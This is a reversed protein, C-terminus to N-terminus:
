KSRNYIDKVRLIIESPNLACGGYVTHKKDKDISCLKYSMHGMVEDSEVTFFMNTTMDPSFVYVLASCLMVSEPSPLTVYCGFTGDDLKFCNTRFEHPLYPSIEGTREILIKYLKYFTNNGPELVSRIVEKPTEFFQTPLSDQEISYRTNYINKNFAM